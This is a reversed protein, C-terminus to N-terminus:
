IVPRALSKHAVRRGLSEHVAEFVIGMGGRGLKGFLEITASATQAASKRLEVTSLIQDPITKDKLEEIM